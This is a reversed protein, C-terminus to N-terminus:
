WQTEAAIATNTTIRFIAQHICQYHVRECGDNVFMQTIEKMRRSRSPSLIDETDPSYFLKWYVCFITYVINGFLVWLPAVPTTSLTAEIDKNRVSLHM